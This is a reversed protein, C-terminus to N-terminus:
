AQLVQLCDVVAVAVKHVLAAAVLPLSWISWM